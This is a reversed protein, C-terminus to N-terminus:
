PQSGAHVWPACVSFGKNLATYNPTLYGRRTFAAKDSLRAAEGASSNWKKSSSDQLFDGEAGSSAADTSALQHDLM